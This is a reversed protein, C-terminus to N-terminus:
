APDRQGAEYARQFKSRLWQKLTQADAGDEIEERVEAMLEDIISM